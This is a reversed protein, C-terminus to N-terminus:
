VSLFDITPIRLRCFDLRIIVSANWSQHSNKMIPLGGDDDDDADDADDDDYIAITVKTTIQKQLYTSCQTSTAPWRPNDVTVALQDHHPHMQYRKPSNSVQLIPANSVKSVYFMWITHVNEFFTTALIFKWMKEQLKLQM